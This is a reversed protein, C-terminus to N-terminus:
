ADKVAKEITVVPNKQTTLWYLAAALFILGVLGILGNTFFNRLNDILAQFISKNTANTAQTDAQSTANTAQTNQQATKAATEAAKTIAKAQTEAAKTTAQGVEKGATTTAQSGTYEWLGNVISGAFPDSTPAKITTTQDSAAAGGQGAGILDGAPGPLSYAQVPPQVQSIDPSVNQAGADPPQDTVYGGASGDNPLGGPAEPVAINALPGQDQPWPGMGNPATADNQSAFPDGSTPSSGQADGPMSYSQPPNSFGPEYQTGASFGYKDAGAAGLEIAGQQAAPSDNAGFARGLGNWPSTNYYGDVGPSGWMTSAAVQIQQDPSALNAVQNGLGGGTYLQLPGYSLGGDGTPGWVNSFNATSANLGETFSTGLGLNAFETAMAPTAGQGIAYNYFGTYLQQGAQVQIPTLAPLSFTM